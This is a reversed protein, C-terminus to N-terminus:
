RKTRGARAQGRAGAPRAPRAGVLGQRPLPAQARRPDDARRLELVRDRADPRLPRDGEAARALRGPDPRRAARRRAPLPPRAPPRAAPLAPRAARARGPRGAHARELLARDARTRAARSEPDAPYARPASAGSPPSRGSAGLGASTEISPSRAPHSPRSHGDPPPRPRPVALTSSPKLFSWVVPVVFSFFRRIRSALSRSSSRRASPSTSSRSPCSTVGNATDTASAISSIARSSGSRANTTSSPSSSCPSASIESVTSNATRGRAPSTRSASLGRVIACAASM